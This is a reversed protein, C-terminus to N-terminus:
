YELEAATTIEALAARLAANVEILAGIINNAEDLQCVATENESRLAANEKELEEQAARLMDESDSVFGPCHCANQCKGGSKHWALDHTCLSCLEGTLIIKDMANEEKLAEIEEKYQMKLRDENHIHNM